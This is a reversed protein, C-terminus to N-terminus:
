RTRRGAYLTFRRAWSPSSSLARVQARFRAFREPNMAPGIYSISRLIRELTDLDVPVEDRFDRAPALSVQALAAVQQLAPLVARPRRPASDEMIRVVQRMFPTDGLECLVVALAGDPTLLRAVQEGTLAADLFHLADAIVVLRFTRDACPPSEATAHVASVDLRQVRAALGLQELMALAPEVATVRHGRAALPLALHGVGAGLDLVQAPATGALEALADVLALPYAPRAGYVDAM